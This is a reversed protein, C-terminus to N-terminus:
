ESERGERIARGDRLRRWRDLRDLMRDIHRWIGSEYRMLLDAAPLKSAGFPENKLDGLAASDFVDGEMKERVARFLIPAVTADAEYLRAVRLLQLALNEVLIVEFSDAPRISERLAALLKRFDAQRERFPEGALVMKAFIGAKLANLRTRHRGAPTRPGGGRSAREPVIIKEPADDNDHRV